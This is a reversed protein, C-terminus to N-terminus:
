LCLFFLKQFTHLFYSADFGVGAPTGKGFGYCTSHAILAAVKVPIEGYRAKGAGVNM